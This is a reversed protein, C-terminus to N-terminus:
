KPKVSNRDSQHCNSFYEKGLDTLVPNEMDSTSWLNGFANEDTNGRNYGFWAWSALRQGVSPDNESLIRLFQKMLGAAQEPGYDQGMWGACAIETDWIGAPTRIKFGKQNYEDILDGYEKFITHMDNYFDGDNRGDGCNIYTHIALYDLDAPDCTGSHRCESLVNDLFSRMWETDHITVSPAPSVIAKGAAKYAKAMEMFDRAAYKPIPDLNSQGGVNPENWGMFAYSYPNSPDPNDLQPWNRDTVGADYFEYDKKSVDGGWGPQSWMMGAYRWDSIVGADRIQEDGRYMERFRWDYRWLKGGGSQDVQAQANQMLAPLNFHYDVDALIGTCAPWDGSIGVGCGWAGSAESSHSLLTSNATWGAQLAPAPVLGEGEILEELDPRSVNSGRLARTSVYKLADQEKCNTILFLAALLHLLIRFSMDKVQVALGLHFAGTISRSPAFRM